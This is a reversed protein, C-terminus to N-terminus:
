FLVSGIMGFSFDFRQFDIPCYLVSVVSLLGFSKCLHACMYLLCCQFSFIISNGMSYLNLASKTYVHISFIKAM